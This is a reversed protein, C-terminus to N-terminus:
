SESEVKDLKKLYGSLDSKLVKLKKIADDSFESFAISGSAIAEMAGEDGDAIAKRAATIGNLEHLMQAAVKAVETM